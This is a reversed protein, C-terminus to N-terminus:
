VLVLKFNGFMNLIRVSGYAEGLFTANAYNFLFKAQKLSINLNVKMVREKKM